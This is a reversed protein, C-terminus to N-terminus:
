IGVKFIRRCVCVFQQKNNSHVYFDRASSCLRGFDQENEMDVCLCLPTFKSTCKVSSAVHWYGLILKSVPVRVTPLPMHYPLLFQSLLREICHQPIIFILTTNINIIRTSYLSATYPALTALNIKRIEQM